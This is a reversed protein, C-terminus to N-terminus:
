QGSQCNGHSKETAEALHRISGWVTSLVAEKWMIESVVNVLWGGV